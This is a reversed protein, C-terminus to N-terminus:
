FSQNLHQFSCAKFQTLGSTRGTKGHVIILDRFSFVRYRGRVAVKFTALSWTCACQKGARQSSGSSSNCSLNSIRSIKKLLGRVGPPPISFILYNVM